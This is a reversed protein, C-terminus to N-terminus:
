GGFWDRFIAVAEHVHAGFMPEQRGVESQADSPVNVSHPLLILSPSDPQSLPVEKFNVNVTEISPVELKPAFAASM